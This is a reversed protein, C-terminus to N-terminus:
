ARTLRATVEIEIRMDPSQLGAVIMTAAPRVERFAENVVPWCIPWDSADPLIYRVRVVDDLSGGAERLARGITALANRCQVVVDGPMVMTTYDYGTTGAVFVWGDCVVARSYGIEAEFPSGSSILRRQDGEAADM